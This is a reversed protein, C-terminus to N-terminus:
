LMEKECKIRINEEIKPMTYTNFVLLIRKKNFTKKM